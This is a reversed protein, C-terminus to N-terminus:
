PMKPSAQIYHAQWLSWMLHACENCSQVQSKERRRWRCRCRLCTNHMIESQLISKLKIKMSEASSGSAPMEKSLHYKQKIKAATEMTKHLLSSGIKKFSSQQSAASSSSSLSNTFSKSTALPASSSSPSNSETKKPSLRQESLASLKELWESMTPSQWKYLEEEDTVDWPYPPSPPKEGMWVTKFRPLSLGRFALNQLFFTALANVLTSSFGNIRVQAEGVIVPHKMFAFSVTSPVDKNFRLFMRGKIERIHVTLGIRLKQLFLTGLIALGLKGKHDLDLM